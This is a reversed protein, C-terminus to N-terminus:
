QIKRFIFDGGKHGSNRITNYEPIQESSGAVIEKIHEYFLEEATFINSEMDQLGDLIAQAFISHGDGGSDSVPENGGSALLTRSNRKMMKQLFKNRKKSSSLDTIAKRTLTGSYCSDAVILIHKSSIRKLNSTLTDVIIWESDSDIEADVPLWYAKNASKDFEGHGAYYILFNDDERLTKRIKNIADLTQKRTSDLLLETKFGFKQKLITDLDRADKRATQLKPLYQYDNNGIILAFYNGSSISLAVNDNNNSANTPTKNLDLNNVTSSGNNVKNVQQAIENVEVNKQIVINKTVSNGHVDSAQIQIKNKGANLILTDKFYGLNDFSINKKNIIISKIKSEDTVKGNITSKNKKTEINLGRLSHSYLIIEPPTTDEKEPRIIELYKVTSNGALDFAEIKINKQTENITIIEAFDGKFAIIPVSNIFIRSTLNKDRAWGKIYVSAPGKKSSLEVKGFPHSTIVLVPGVIDKKQNSVIQTNSTSTENKVLFDSYSINNRNFIQYLSINPYETQIYNIIQKDFNKNQSLDWDVLEEEIRIDNYAVEGFYTAKGSVITFYGLTEIYKRWSSNNNDLPIPGALKYSGAPLEIVSIGKNPNSYTERQATIAGIKNDNKYILSQFSSSGKKTIGSETIKIILIGKDSQGNLIYDKKVYSLCGYLSLCISLVFMALIPKIFLKKMKRCYNNIKFDWGRKGFYKGCHDEYHLEM